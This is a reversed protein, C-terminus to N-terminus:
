VNNRITESNFFTHSFEQALPHHILKELSIHCEPILNHFTHKTTKYPYKKKNKVMSFIHHPTIIEGERWAMVSVCEYDLFIVPVQVLGLRKAVSLRHHGDMVFYQEKHVALPKKWYGSKIIEKELNIVESSSVEETPILREPDTLCYPPLDLNM